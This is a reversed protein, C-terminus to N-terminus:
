ETVFWDLLRTAVERDGSISLSEPGRRGYFALVLASAPGRLVADGSAAGREVHGVGDAFRVLWASDPVEDAIVAITADAHPWKPGAAVEVGLFEEVGDVAVAVPLEDARRATDLADWAHVAAEQVQHRAIAGATRPEGWWTWAGAGPGAVRLAAVLEDTGRESWDLLDGSPRTDPVEEGPPGDAPGAAVVVAWFRQVEGLHAVLDRGTWDPCGPVPADLAGAIASRLVASREAVHGVMEEYSLNSTM